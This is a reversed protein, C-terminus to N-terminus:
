SAKTSAPKKSKLYHMIGNVVALAVVIDGMYLLFFTMMDLSFLDFMHITAIFGLTYWTAAQLAPGIKSPVWRKTMGLANLFLIAVLIWIYEDVSAFLAPDLVTIIATTVFISFMAVRLTIYTVGMIKRESADITGDWIAVIFNSIAITSSGVGLGITSAQFVIALPLILELMYNFYLLVRHRLM